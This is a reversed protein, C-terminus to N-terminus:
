GTFFRIPDLQLDYTFQEGCDQCTLKQSLDYGWNAMENGRETIVNWYTRPVSKLWEAIHNRDTVEDVQKIMVLLELMILDLLMKELRERDEPTKAPQAEIDARAHLISMADNFRVTNLVVRQGNPMSVESAVKVSEINENNPKLQELNIRYKHEKADKCDHQFEITIEPGYTVIRLFCFLAEVDRTVLSNPKLIDPTCEKCIEELVRGSYLLDPTKIKLELIGTMPKVEIEGNRVHPSFMGDDYFAGKSPLQFIRGPLKIRGLLPNSM